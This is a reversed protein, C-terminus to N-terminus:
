CSTVSAPLLRKLDPTVVAKADDDGTPELWIGTGGVDVVLAHRLFGCCRRDIDVFEAARVLIAPVDRLQIRYGDPLELVAVAAAFVDAAVREARERAEKLAAPSPKAGDPVLAAVDCALPLKSHQM